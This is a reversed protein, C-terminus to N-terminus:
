VIVNQQQKSMHGPDVEVGDGGRRRQEWRQVVGVGGVVVVCKL